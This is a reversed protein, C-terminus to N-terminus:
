TEKWGLNTQMAVQFWKFHLYIRVKWFLVIQKKFDWNQSNKSFLCKWNFVIIKSFTELIIQLLDFIFIFLFLFSHVFFFRLMLSLTLYNCCLMIKTIYFTSDLIKCYEHNSFQYSFSAETCFANVCNCFGTLIVIFVAAVVVEVVVSASVM